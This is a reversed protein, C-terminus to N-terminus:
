YIEHSNRLSLMRIEAHYRFNLGIYTSQVFFTTIVHFRIGLCFM